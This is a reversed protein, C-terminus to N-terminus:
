KEFERELTHLWDCIQDSINEGELYTVNDVNVVQKLDAKTICYDTVSFMSVDIINDGASICIDKLGLFEIFRKVSNGKSIEASCCYVKRNDQWVFVKEDDLEDQLFEMIRKTENSVAYVFFPQVRHIHNKSVMRNMLFLCRDIEDLSRESIYLTNNLWEEHIMNNNLLIGGNCLLAYEVGFSGDVFPVLRKYQEVHRSTVPVFMTGNTKKLYDYANKTMYAQERGRLYEVVVKPEKVKRNHSYVLTNDIDSFFIMKDEGGILERM